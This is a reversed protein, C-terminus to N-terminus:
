LYRWCNWSARVVGLLEFLQPFGDDGVHFCAGDEEVGEGLMQDANNAGSSRVRLLMALPISAM